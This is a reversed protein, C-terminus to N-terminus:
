EEEVDEEDTESEDDYDDDDEFDEDEDATELEDDQEQPVPPTRQNATDPNNSKQPMAIVEAGGYAFDSGQLPQWPSQSKQPSV